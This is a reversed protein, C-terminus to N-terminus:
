NTINGDDNFGAWPARYIDKTFPNGRNTAEDNLDTNESEEVDSTYNRYSGLTSLNTLQLLECTPGTFGLARSDNSISSVFPSVVALRSAYGHTNAVSGTNSNGAVSDERPTMCLSVPKNKINEATIRSHCFDTGPASEPSLLSILIYRDAAHNTGSAGDSGCAYSVLTFEEGSPMEFVYRHKNNLTADNLPRSNTDIFGNLSAYQKASDRMLKVGSEEDAIARIMYLNRDESLAYNCDKGSQGTGDCNTKKDGEASAYGYVYLEKKVTNGTEEELAKMEAFCQKVNAILKAMDISNKPAISTKDYQAYFLQNCKDKIKQKIEEVRPTQMKPLLKWQTDDEGDPKLGIVYNFADGGQNFVNDDHVASDYTIPLTKWKPTIEFVQKSNADGYWAFHNCPEAEEIYAPKAVSEVSTRLLKTAGNINLTIAPYYRDGEKCYTPCQKSVVGPSFDKLTGIPEQALVGNELKYVENREGNKAGLYCLNTCEPLGEILAQDIDQEADNLKIYLYDTANIVHLYADYAKGKEKCTYESDRGSHTDCGAEENCWDYTCYDSSIINDFFDSAKVSGVAMDLDKLMKVKLDERSSETMIWYVRGSGKTVKSENSNGSSDSTTSAQYNGVKLGKICGEYLAIAQSYRSEAEKRKEEDTAANVKERWEKVENYINNCGENQMANNSRINENLYENAKTPDSSNHSSNSSSGSSNPVVNTGDLTTNHGFVGNNKTRFSYKYTHGSLHQRNSEDMEVIDVVKATRQGSLDEVLIAYVNFKLDPNTIIATMENAQQTGISYYSQPGCKTDAITKEGIGPRKDGTYIDCEVVSNKRAGKDSVQERVDFKDDWMSERVAEYFVPTVRSNNGKCIELAANVQGQYSHNWPWFGRENEVNANMENVNHRININGGKPVFAVLKNLECNSYENNDFQAALKKGAPALDNGLQVYVVIESDKAVNVALQDDTKKKHISEAVGTKAEKVKAILAIVTKNELNKKEKTNKSVNYHFDRPIKNVDSCDGKYEKAAAMKKLRKVLVDLGLCKARIKFFGTDSDPDQIFEGKHEECIKIYRDAASYNDSKKDTAGDKNTSTTTSGAAKVFDSLSGLQEYGKCIYDADGAGQGFMHSVDVDKSGFLLCNVLQKGGNFIIDYINSWLMDRWKYQFLEWWKQSRAQMMDWWWPKAISYGNTNGPFGGGSGPRPSGAGGFAGGEGMPTLTGDVDKMQAALLNAKAGRGANMANISRAAEAYLNEGTLSRGVTGRAEMPQLAVPRVGPNPVNPGPTNVPGQGMPLAHSVGTAGKGSPIQSLRLARNIETGKRVVSNRVSPRTKQGFKEVTTPKNAKDSYKKDYSARDDYNSRYPKSSDRDSDYRRRYSDGYADQKPSESGLAPEEIASKPRLILDLPDTMAGAPMIDAGGGEAYTPEDQSTAWNFDSPSAIDESGNRSLVPLLLLACAAVLIFPLDRQARQVLTRKQKNQGGVISPLRKSLPVSKSKRLKDSFTFSDKNPM